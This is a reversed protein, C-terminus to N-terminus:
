QPSSHDPQGGKQIPLRAYLAPGAEWDSATAQSQLVAMQMSTGHTSCVLTAVTWRLVGQWLTKFHMSGTQHQLSFHLALNPLGLQRLIVQVGEPALFFHAQGGHVAHPLNGLGSGKTRPDQLSSAHPEHGGQTHVWLHQVPLDHKSLMPHAGEGVLGQLNKKMKSMGHM